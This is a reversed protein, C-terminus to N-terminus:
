TPSSASLRRCGCCSGDGAGTVVIFRFRLRKARCAHEAAPLALLKLWTLLDYASLM